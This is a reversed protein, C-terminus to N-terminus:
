ELGPVAAEALQQGGVVVGQFGHRLHFRRQAVAAGKGHGEDAGFGRHHRDVDVLHDLIQAFHRIAAVGVQFFRKFANLLLDVRDGVFLDDQVLSVPEDRDNPDISAQNFQGAFLHGVQALRSGQGADVDRWSKRNGRRGAALEVQLVVEIRLDVPEELLGVRM